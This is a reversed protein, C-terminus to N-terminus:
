WNGCKNHAPLPNNDQKVQGFTMKGILAAKFATLQLNILTAM